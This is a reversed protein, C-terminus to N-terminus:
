MSSCMLNKESANKLSKEEEVCRLQLLNNKERRKKRKSLFVFFHWYNRREGKTERREVDQVRKKDNFLNWYPVPALLREDCIFM